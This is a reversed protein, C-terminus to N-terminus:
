IIKGVWSPYYRAYRHYITKDVKSLDIRLDATSKIRRIYFYDLLAKEKEAMNVSQNEKGGSVVKYGFFLKPTIKAYQYKGFSTAITKTTTPTVSTVVQAVDPILGYYFLASELSIYSPQYLLQAMAMEDIATLDFAYLGRKIRQILGRKTFRSLQIKINSAFEEPFYKAVDLVTFLNSKLRSKLELYEM